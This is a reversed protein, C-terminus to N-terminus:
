KTEYLNILQRVYKQKSFKDARLKGIESLRAREKGSDILLPLQSALSSPNGSQFYIATNGAVELHAPIDSVICALGATLAEGLAIGFGEFKSAAIFIDYQGLVNSTDDIAGKLVIKEQLQNKNIQDELLHRQAGEGFIDLSFNQKKLLTLAKIVDYHAKELRLNGVMVMRLHDASFSSTEIEFYKQDIFNYIVNFNTTIGIADCVLDKVAESVFVLYYRPRYTLKDLLLLKRSYQAKNQKNYILSHYTSILPVNSPCALRAVIMSYYLHSHVIQVQLDSIIRRLTFVCRPLSKWGSYDLCFMTLDQTNNQFSNKPNLHVLIHRYGPIRVNAHILLSEAGGVGLSDIIHLIVKSM